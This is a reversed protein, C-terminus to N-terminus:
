LGIDAIQGQGCFIAPLIDVFQQFQDCVNNAAGSRSNSDTTFLDGRFSHLVTKPPQVLGGDLVDKLAHSLVGPLNIVDSSIQQGDQIVGGSRYPM